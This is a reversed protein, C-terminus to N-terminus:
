QHTQGKLYILRTTFSDLGGYTKITNHKIFHLTLKVKVCTHTLVSNIKRIIAANNFAVSTDGTTTVSSVFNKM